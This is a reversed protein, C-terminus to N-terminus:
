RRFLERAKQLAELVINDRIKASVESTDVPAEDLRKNYLDRVERPLKTILEADEKSLMVMKFNINSTPQIRM